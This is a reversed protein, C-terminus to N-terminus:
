ALWGTLGDLCGEWGKEHGARTPEDLIKEHAIVIETADGRPEFRVQVRETPGDGVTWSYVLRRPPDVVEFEGAIWLERGDPFRNGIRYRGGVRLDVEAGCCTVPRPGWWTAIADARTWASWVRAIPARLVRRVVLTVASM